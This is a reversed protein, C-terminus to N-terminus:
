RGDERRLWYTGGRLTSAKAQLESVLEAAEDHTLSGLIRSPNWMDGAGHMVEYTAARDPTADRGCYACPNEMTPEWTKCWECEAARSGTAHQDSM